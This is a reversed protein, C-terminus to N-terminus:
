PRLFRKWLFYLPLLYAFIVSTRLRFMATSTGGFIGVRSIALTDKIPRLVPGGDGLFATTCYEAVIERVAPNTSGKPYACCSVPAGCWEGIVRKSEQLEWHLEEPTLRTWRRHTVGHAGFHTQKKERLREVIGQPDLEGRACGVEEERPDTAIFVTVPIDLQALAENDRYGDDFTIACQRGKEPLWSVIAAATVFTFGRLRLDAIQARLEKLTVSFRGVSGIRHYMLVLAYSRRGFLLRDLILLLRVMM